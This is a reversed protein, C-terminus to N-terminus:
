FGREDAPRKAMKHALSSAVFKFTERHERPYRAEDGRMEAEDDEALRDRTGEPLGFEREFRQRGDLMDGQQIEGFM